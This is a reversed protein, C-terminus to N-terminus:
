VGFGEAWLGCDPCTLTKELRRGLGEVAEREGPQGAGEVETATRPTSVEDDDREAGAGCALGQLWAVVERGLECDRAAELAEGVAESGVPVGGEEVLWQLMSVWVVKDRPKGALVRALGHPHWPVGLRRLHVLTSRQYGWFAQVYPDCELKWNDPGPVHCGEALLWDLLAEYGSTAARALTRNSFRIGQEQHLYRVLQMDGKEAAEGLTRPGFPEEDGRWQHISKVVEICLRTSALTGHDWHEVVTDAGDERLKTGFKEPDELLYQIMRVDGCEAAAMYTETDIREALRGERRLLYQVLEINGSMVAYHSAMEADHMIRQGCEEHLYRAAGLHGGKAASTLTKKHLPGGWDQLWRLKRVDGSFAAACCLGVWSNEYGTWVVNSPPPPEVGAEKVLWRAVELDAHQLAAFLVCREAVKCGRGRLWQLLRVNGAAAAAQALSVGLGAGAVGHLWEVKALAAGHDGCAAAGCLAGECLKKAVAEGEREQVYAVAERLQGLSCHEAVEVIAKEMDLPCGHRVLWPILEPHGARAAASAPNPVPVPGRAETSDRPHERFYELYAKSEPFLCPRVLEWAVALNAECGSSAATSLLRVKLNFPLQYLADQAAQAWAPWEVAVHPPLPHRITATCQHPQRLQLWAEKFALRGSCALENPALFSLVHMLLPTPLHPDPPQAAPLAQQGSSPAVDSDATAPTDLAPMATVHIPESPSEPISLSM